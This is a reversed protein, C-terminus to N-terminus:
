ICALYEVVEREIFEPTSSSSVVLASKYQKIQLPLALLEKLNEVFFTEERNEQLTKFLKNANASLRDGLVFTIDADKQLRLAEKERISTISCISDFIEIEFGEGCLNKIELSAKDFLGENGTTQSVILIRSYGKSVLASQSAQYQKIFINIDEENEIVFYDKAYSILSEVEPHNKKGTIVIFFGELAHKEIYKQLQKVKSCTLDIIERNKRLIEEKQKNMGHTRIIAISYPEVRETEELTVIGQSSLYDIYAQNHILKGLIFIKKGPKEKKLHFLNKEALKVGPCFGSYPPIYIKM